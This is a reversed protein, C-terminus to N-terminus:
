RPTQPEHAVVTITVEVDAWRHEVPQVTPPTILKCFIRTSERITELYIPTTMLGTVGTRGESIPLFVRITEPVVTVAQLVVGPPLHGVMQPKIPLQAETLAALTLAIASPQVDLLRVNRPLRISEETVAVTQRGPMAGSLDIKASLQSPVLADLDPKPGALHLKIETPKEGVLVLNGPPTTYELPATFVKELIEGQGIVLVAWFVAALILSGVIQPGVAWRGAGRPMDALYSATRRWHEEIAAAAEGPAAIPQLAERCFLSVQGREESVVLVLADSLEALGMAAHHRTGYAEGLIASRSLPLRVGFRQLRGSRVILAGDHGPSNPDFISQILAQSPEADLAQGGSLWEDLPEKGPLVVIAGRRQRALAFMTDALSDALGQVAKGAESRRLSAAREFIKRLEPQFIVVLAIAAVHSVNSYIWEMGVLNMSSALFFCGFAILTGAVIKWTGLRLLTRYLFFLLAAVMAIDLVARWSVMEQLLLTAM